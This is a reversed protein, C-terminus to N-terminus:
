KTRDLDGCPIVVNLQPNSQAAVGATATTAITATLDGTKRTITLPRRGGSSRKRPDPLSIEIGAERLFTVLRRLQGSLARPSKPWAPSKAAEYALPELTKLLEGTTEAWFFDPEKNRSILEIIAASVPDSELTEQIAEARNGDYARMFDGPAFGLEGEAATAWLAFDALRPKRNLKINPLRALAASIAAFLAGLIQPRDREYDAYLQAEDRRAHEDIRPLQLIIAREALDPRETLHDIGNLIVPRTLDLIVEDTDTYLERTAFGGGTALRCLADSLWQPLGSLNDFAMVWSNNAAIMLDREERPPTRLSAAAPDILGRILRATTSKASGQEGLLVLVPYPGKPRLAAVLWSLLLMWNRADGINILDRLPAVSGGPVPIPLLQMGRSRCFRVPPNQVVKWGQPRIEVAEWKDNCLDIYIGDGHPAIRAYVQSEPSDFRARAELLSLADQMGQSAPPKGHKQYFERTLWGRLGKSKIPWIERHEGVRLSAYAVMEPTHFLEIGAACEVILQSQTAKRSPECRASESGDGETGATHPFKAFVDRITRMRCGDHHCQFGPQGDFLTFTSSGGIHAPNFPCEELEYILGGPKASWGKRQKVRFHHDALYKEM